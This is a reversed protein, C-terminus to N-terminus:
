NKGKWYEDYNKEFFIRKRMKNFNPNIISRTDDFDLTKIQTIDLITHILDDTMYPNNLSTEIKNIIEPYNEKFKDSVYILFPIEIMYRSPNNETHGIFNRFDLVEEGHDSVYIIIAEKNKFETIIKNIVYDNYLVANDYEAVKNKKNKFKDFSSPYRNKYSSHTGMLHYVIFNKNTNIYKKSKVVIEEDYSEAVNDESDRIKNFITTKAKSALAAAINGYIGSSEQNSFWYTNYGAKNMIDIINNYNYWEKTSEYNCFTFLKKIVPITHSHPSITDTFKYLNGEKELQKLLPNTEKQYGYLSM